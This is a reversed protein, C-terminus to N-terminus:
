RQIHIQEKQVNVCTSSSKKKHEYMFPEFWEVDIYIKYDYDISKMQTTTTYPIGPICPRRYVKRRGSKVPTGPSVSGGALM